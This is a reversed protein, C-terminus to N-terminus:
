TRLDQSMLQLQHQVKVLPREHGRVTGLRLLEEQDRLARLALVVQTVRIHQWTWSCCFTCGQSDRSYLKKTNESFM